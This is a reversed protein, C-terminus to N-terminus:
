KRFKSASPFGLLVDFFPPAVPDTAVNFSYVIPNHIELNRDSFIKEVHVLFIPDFCM